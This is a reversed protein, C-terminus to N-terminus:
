PATESNSTPTDTLLAAVGDRLVQESRPGVLSATPEYGGEAFSAATCLYGPGGDGYGAVAVFLDPRLRQAQQQFTVFPEGPLHMIRIPGICLASIEIPTAARGRFALTLAGNLRVRPAAGVAALERQGEAMSYGGDDRLPFTLAATRMALPGIPQTQGAAIAARMGVALRQTLERRAAPSGDNYKGATVDGACGTFYIHPIQEESELLQRALGPLDSTGRGDGYFSQPHTAYYHLRVVPKGAALFSITRLYPDIDGEPAAHLVPDTTSSYRVLIKGEPSMVRRTAAVREVKAMGTAIRDCPAMNATARQVAEQLQRVAEEFGALSMLPVSPPTEDLLRQATTDVLPANHQHLCQVAVHSVPCEAAQSLAQRLYTHAENRVECWDLACLVFRRGAQELVVGKGLLPDDVAELPKIWGGCLPSGLPPTIDAQFAAARTSPPEDCLAPGATLIGFACAMAVACNGWAVAALRRFM